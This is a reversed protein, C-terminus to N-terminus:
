RLDSRNQHSAAAPRVDVLVSYFTPGGALDNLRQSTLLNVNHGGESLKNWNLRAAVVGPRVSGNVHARLALRGRDNFVDVLDGDAIGRPTADDIHLELVGNYASEMQWHAELNPFTSNMYNDAKRALLELPYRESADTHRSELAPVFGPLPDIGQVALSASYFEVRGSPTDFPGEAFPLFRQEGRNEPFKLRQMGGSEHLTDATIGTLWPHQHEPDGTRLAQAILADVSDRFCPETFGIRQALQSFLWVNSRSEGLPAIAQDSLQVYYHGYAGQVDKHEFFTTAPLLIDAYDATDTFFQEHM